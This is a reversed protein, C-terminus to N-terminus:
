LLLISTHKSHPQHTPWGLPMVLYEFHGYRTRFATKWEHGERIRVRHYADKLDLKTFIKAGQLRDLTEDILPLPHRNKITVKNLGRYDVCLRLGGDKKPVFLIPAGAPSTSPRIWRKRLADRLYLRLAELQTESLNYLPGYPVTGDTDISHEVGGLDPLESAKDPDFVGTFDEGDDRLYAPVESAGKGLINVQRTMYEQGTDGSDHLSASVQYGDCICSAWQRPCDCEGKTLFLAQPVVEPHNDLEEGFEKPTLIEVEDPWAPAYAWRRKVYDAYQAITAEYFEMGFVLSHSGVNKCGYFRLKFPRTEGRDDTIFVELDYARYVKFKNGYFTVFEQDCEALAVFGRSQAWEDNLFNCDSGTDGLGAHVESAGVEPQTLRAQISMRLSVGKEDRGFDGVNL